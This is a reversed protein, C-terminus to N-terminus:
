DLYVFENLNLVLLAFQNLAVEPATNYKTKLTQMFTLGREIEDQTPERSLALRLGLKVQAEPSAGAEKKLRNAFAKAEDNMMDSNLLMLSQTAQTTTFRAPCSFDTDAADFAAIIPVVLSRKVHIYVSRRAADEPSSKGWGEGPKSQGSLITAPITPYIGPGGMKLNLQGTAQLISDRFEEATLRRMDFRWFLDNQSDKSLAAENPTSSMQYAASTMILKHIAKLHWGRAVLETALYDLLEPHTPKDGGFGFDNPSRVIGRGFHHEWLRNVVVRAVLPNQDSTLWNALQTRLGTTKQGKKPAPLIVKPPSLVQPFAPEVEEGPSSANGRKLIFTQVPKNGIEKVSLAQPYDSEKREELEKLQLRLEKYRRLEDENTAALIKADLIAARKRPKELDVKETETLKPIVLDEFAAVRKRLDEKRRALSQVEEEHSKQQDDPVIDTLINRGNQYPTINNFFAVLSYYDKQPIPDIKHDHCRCCNMTMGMFGQGVTTVIDDLEDFRAQMKDSPEDDWAGLRYFGTAIITEPTPHEVEDGAIQERIFQDYPKDKNFADIVYDRYKWANPKLGDREFSNTEAFRVVDLWHRGWKEGYQPSTLLRDIIKDYANPSKDAIFADVEEPKPALGTLDYYARRILTAKAAPGAHQLGSAELKSFIFNDIPNRIASADKVQPVPPRRIPQYSWFKMTEPTVKPPAHKAPPETTTAIPEPAGPTWPIGMEVWRTLVAIKEKPLQEKPPMQLDDDKYNIAKLLLSKAPQDLSVAPGTDGGKLIAARSTLRLGGKIKAEAGHCKFCATELIPRVQSEFFQLQETPPAPDAPRQAAAIAASLAIAGLSALLSIQCLNRRSVAM